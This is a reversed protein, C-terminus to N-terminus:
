STRPYIRESSRCNNFQCERTIIYGIQRHGLGLLHQTISLVVKAQRRSRSDGAIGPTTHDIFVLPIARTQAEELLDSNISGGVDLYRNWLIKTGRPV